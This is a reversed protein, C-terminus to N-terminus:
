KPIKKYVLGKQYLRLFFWQEFRYYDPDCTTIERSWDYAFGMRMFQKRMHDINQRTWQAPPVKHKIAANEAPLGFADWCMPQLVNKGMMYQYRAIVDGITYNRVHGMHLTGSPYPMMSLCYFKEKNVDEIVHFSNKEHWYEQADAEIEQPKYQEEMTHESDSLIKKPQITTQKRLARAALINALIAKGLMVLAIFLIPDMGNRMWPTLGHMPQVTGNLVATERPPLAKLVNGNADILATIGDNSVFIAPRGLEIARMAAMQLHQAQASSDGFWADNTLTLLVGAKDDMTNNLEPFAIEYCISPIFVAGNLSFHAQDNSGSILTPFPIHMFNFFSASFKKLPIYEGFPVLRRKVYSKNVAGLTVISNYYSVGDNAEAPIGLILTAGTDKAKADLMNIYSAANQISMPVAAEPWIIIQDKKWLPATLTEYRDLSLQVHEPAWKMHQPINGQVLSVSLPNSTAETWPILSLLAGLTWIGVCALLNLYATRYDQQRLKLLAYVLLSSTLLIALSVGYVSFIPAFGKLPSHTQSYGLLLWPFGTFLWSRVWELLVWIAPFAYILKNELTNFYRQTLYCTIAPFLALFLVLLATILASVSPPVGGFVHISHYVWYVGAGFYGLGFTLGLYFGQRSSTGLLLALLGMPALVAFPFIDYPAFALPLLTGLLLAALYRMGPKALLRASCKKM